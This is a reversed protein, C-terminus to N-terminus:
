TRQGNRQVGALATAREEARGGFWGHARQSYIM